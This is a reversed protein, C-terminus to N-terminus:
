LKPAPAQEPRPRARHEPLRCLPAPAQSPRGRALHARLSGRAMHYTERAQLERRARKAAPQTPAAEEVNMFAATVDLLDELDEKRLPDPCPGGFLDIAKYAHGPRELSLRADECYAKVQCPTPDKAKLTRVEVMCGLRRELRDNVEQITRLLAEKTVPMGGLHTLATCAKLFNLRNEIAADNYCGIFSMFYEGDEPAGVVLLRQDGYAKWTWRVLCSACRWHGGTCTQGERADNQVCRWWSSSRLPWKKCNGCGYLM